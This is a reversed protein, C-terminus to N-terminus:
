RAFGHVVCDHRCLLGRGLLGSRRATGIGELILTHRIRRVVQGRRDIVHVIGRVDPM